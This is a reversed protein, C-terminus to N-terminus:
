ILETLEQEAKIDDLIFSMRQEEVDGAQFGREHDEYNFERDFEPIM